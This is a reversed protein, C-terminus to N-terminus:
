ASRSACATFAIRDSRMRFQSLARPQGSADELIDELFIMPAGLVVGVLAASQADAATAGITTRSGTIKVDLQRELFLLPDPENFELDRSEDPHIAIYSVSIGLPQTDQMLLSEIMLVTWDSPLRLRERVLRLGGLTRYELTKLETRISADGGFERVPSLQNIRLMVAAASRTGRKPSRTVLGDKALQQLVARVTNRSASLADILEGEVLFQDGRGNQLTSRLLDYTRRMSNNLRDPTQRNRQYLTEPRVPRTPSPRM